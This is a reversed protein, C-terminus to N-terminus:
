KLGVLIGPPLKFDETSNRWLHLCYKHMNIYETKAPHFQVVTETEDWFLDKIFCMEGWTPCRNPRSVSVHQWESDTPAVLVSLKELRKEPSLIYFMGYNSGPESGYMNAAIAGIITPQKFLRYKEIKEPVKM